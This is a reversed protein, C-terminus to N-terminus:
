PQANAISACPVDFAFEQGTRQLFDFFGGICNHVFHFEFSNKAGMGNPIEVPNTIHGWNKPKM